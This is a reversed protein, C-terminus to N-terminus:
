LGLLVYIERIQLKLEVTEAELVLRLKRLAVFGPENLIAMSFKFSVCSHEGSCKQM